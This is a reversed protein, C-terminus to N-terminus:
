GWAARLAFAIAYEVGNSVNHGIIPAVVSRSRDLWYSYFLAFALAYLQQGLAELFPRRAFNGAHALAFLVAVVVGAVHQERGFLRVRGSVRTALWSVLLGRFVVEEVTGAVLWEFGLWGAVNAPALAFPGPPPQRALLQPAFDVLTMLVGFAVGWAIAPGIYGRGAEPRRLGYTGPTRRRVVTIAALGAALQGLYGAWALAWDHRAIAGPFALHAVVRGLAIGGVTVVAGLLLTRLIPRTRLRVDILAFARPATPTGTPPSSDV